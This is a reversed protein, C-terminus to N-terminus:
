RKEKCHRWVSFTVTSFCFIVIVSLIIQVWTSSTFATHRIAIAVATYPINQFLYINFGQENWLRLIHWNPLTVISFLMSLAALVMVGYTLFVFDPPFKHEQMPCFPIQCIRYVLLLVLAAMACFLVHKMRINKYFVYGAVMFINYCLVNRVLSNETVHSVVLFSIVCLLLYGGRNIKTLIRKQLDFTCSLLMYPVIFWLHSTHPLYPIADCLLVKAWDKWTYAPLHLRLAVICLMLLAYIYYPVLIRKARNRVTTWFPRPERHFSLAAGSVFFILPMEVLSLSLYPEKGFGLWFEVHIFCVIYIMLMARYADLQTDRKM